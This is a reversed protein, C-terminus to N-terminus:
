EVKAWQVGYWAVVILLGLVAPYIWDLVNMKEDPNTKQRFFAVMAVLLPYEVVTKFIFPAVVATFIGGLAGGLAVWFYFETLHRTDPRRSALATHCLLAGAFLVFIHSGLVYWLLNASVPKSAAVLPFLVLLIVPIVRSLTIHSLRLRRAFAIMFTILYVALPMVWLFPVSALNLLMHNTVALM